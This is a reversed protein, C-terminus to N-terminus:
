ELTKPLRFAPLLKNSFPNFAADTTVSYVVGRGSVSFGVTINTSHNNESTKGQEFLKFAGWVGKASFSNVSNSLSVLKLQYDNQGSERPWNFTLTRKPGHNYVLSEGNLDLDAGKLHASLSVVQMKYTFKPPQGEENFFTAKIDAARQLQLLLKQSLPLSEGDFKKLVWPHQATDIFPAFYKAFFKEFEGNTEFFQTFEPLSVEQRANPAFPFHDMINKEYVPYLEKSYKDSIYDRASALLAQWTGNAIMDLWRKVPQPAAQAQTLLATIPDDTSPEGGIRQMVAQYAKEDRDSSTNIDIIYDNLKVLAAQIAGYPSAAKEGEGTSHLLSDLAIFHEGVPTREAPNEIDNVSSAKKKGKPTFRRAKSTVAKVGKPQVANVLQRNQKLFTGTKALLGPGGGAVAPNLETNTKLIDLVSYLPSNSGSIITLVRSAEQLNDFPQVSLNELIATWYTIYDRMYFERVQEATESGSADDDLSKQAYDGLVWNSSGQNEIVKQLQVKYLDNYGKFTYLAPVNLKAAEKGFIQNFDLNLGNSIYLRGNQAIGALEQLEFYDRQAQTTGQLKLRANRVLAGDVTIPKIPLSLFSNLNATLGAVVSPQTEYKKQWYTHLWNQMFEPSIKDPNALMLYVRLANYTQNPKADPNNLENVVVDVVYPMFYIALNNRYIEEAVEDVKDGQYLGWRVAKPDNEPDFASSMERLENLMPLVSLLRSNKADVDAPIAQFEEVSQNVMQLYESNLMFSKGWLYAFFLIIVGTLSFSFYRWGHQRKRQIANFLLIDKEPFIIKEFLGNIFYHKDNSNEHENVIDVGYAQQSVTELCDFPIGKQLSSTFFVGRVAHPQQYHNAEFVDLFFQELVPKITLMQMPFNNVLAADRAEKTGQLQKLLQQDLQKILKDFETSFSKVSDKHEKYSLTLGFVQKEQDKDLSAFYESFGSLLDVKTFTVYIPTQIGLRTNLIQLQSRLVHVREARQQEDMKLLEHLDFCLIVGNIPQKRRYQKMLTLLEQWVRNAVSDETTNTLLDAHSDIIVASKSFWFQCLEDDDQEIQQYSENAVPYPIGSYKLLSSRGSNPAGLVLYWPLDYQKTFKKSWSGQSVVQCAKNFQLKLLALARTIKEPDTTEGDEEDTSKARRALIINIIAWAIVLLLIITLRVAAKGFPVFDGFKILPLLFWVILVLAILGVTWWFWAKKFMAFFKNFFNKM